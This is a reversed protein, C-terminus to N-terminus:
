RQLCLTYIKAALAECVSVDTADSCSNEPDGGAVDPTDIVEKAPDCINDDTIGNADNILQWKPKYRVEDDFTGTATKQVFVADFPSDSGSNDEEDDDVSSPFSIRTSSGYYPYAGHGNKGHSVLVYVAETTRATGSADNVTIGGASTYQLCVTSTTGDCDENTVNNNAFRYDVAYSIRRGWGDIMTEDSLGLTKVPVVGLYVNAGDNFNADGCSSDDASGAVGFANASTADITKSGDAPCPLRQNDIVYQELAQEIENLKQETENAKDSETKKTAITLAGGLTVSIIALVISLEVLSFGYARVIRYRRPKVRKMSWTGKKM